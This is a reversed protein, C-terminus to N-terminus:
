VIMYKELKKMAMGPDEVAIEKRVKGSLMLYVRDAVELIDDIREHSIVAVGSKDSMREIIELMRSANEDALGQFPEDLLLYKPSSLVARAFVVMQREGGSIVDVRRNAIRELHPFIRVADAFEGAIEVNERVTLGEAVRMREPALVIGLRFREHPKKGDLNVGDLKVSGEYSRLGMIAKFLTSKGSGNPGVVLVIEGREVGFSVGKLIEAGDSVVRLNEARLM